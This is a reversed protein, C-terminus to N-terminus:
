IILFPTEFGPRYVLMHLSILDHRTVHSVEMTYTKGSGTQGYAFMCVNYGDMVSTIVPAADRYIADQSAQPGYVADFTFRQVKQSAGAKGDRFISAPRFAINMTVIPCLYADVANCIYDLLPMYTQGQSANMCGKVYLHASEQACTHLNALGFALMSPCSAANIVFFVLRIFKDV